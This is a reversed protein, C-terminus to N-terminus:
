LSVSGSIGTLSKTGSGQADLQRRADAVLDAKITKTTKAVGNEDRLPTSCNFEITESELTVAISAYATTEDQRATGSVISGTITAM